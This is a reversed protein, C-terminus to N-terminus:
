ARDLWDQYSRWLEVRGKKLSGRLKQESSPQYVKAIFPASHKSLFREVKNICAVFNKALEQHSANGVVLFLPVGSRMVAAIENPRYRM